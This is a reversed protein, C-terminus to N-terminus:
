DRYCYYMNRKETNVLVAEDQEENIGLEYIAQYNTDQVEGDNVFENGYLQILYYHYEGKPETMDKNELDYTGYVHNNEEDQYKNWIFNGNIKLDLTVVYDDDVEDNTLTRCNWVGSVTRNKSLELIGGSGLESQIILLFVSAVCTFLGLWVGLNKYINRKKCTIGLIFAVAGLIASFILLKLMLAIAIMIVFAGAVGCSMSIKSILHDISAKTRVTHPISTTVSTAKTHAQRQEKETDLNMSSGCFTCFKKKDNIEKGCKNCIM